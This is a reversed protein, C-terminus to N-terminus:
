VELNYSISFANYVGTKLCKSPHNIVMQFSVIIRICIFLCIFLDYVVYKVKCEPMILM